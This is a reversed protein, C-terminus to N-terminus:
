TSPLPSPPPPPPSPMYEAAAMGTKKCVSALLLATVVDTHGGAAAHMMANMGNADTRTLQSHPAVSSLLREVTALHGRAAAHMLANMGMRDVLMVQTHPIHELCRAVLDVDGRSCADMLHTSESDGFKATLDM